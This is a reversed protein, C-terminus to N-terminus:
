AITELAAAITSAMTAIQEREVILPPSL